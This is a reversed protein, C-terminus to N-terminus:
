GRRMMARESRFRRLLVMWSSLFIVALLKSSRSTRFSSERISSRVCRRGVTEGRRSGTTCTRRARRTNISTPNRTKSRLGLRASMHRCPRRTNLSADACPSKRLPSLFSISVLHIFHTLGGADKEEIPITPPVGRTTQTVAVIADNMQNIASILADPPSNGDWNNAETEIARMGTGIDTFLDLYTKRKELMKADPQLPALAAAVAVSTFLLINKLFVM